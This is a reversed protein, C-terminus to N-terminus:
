VISSDIDVDPDADGDADSDVDGADTPLSRKERDRAPKNAILTQGHDVMARHQTASVKPSCTTTMPVVPAFSSSPTDIATPISARAKTTEGEKDSSGDDAQPIVMDRVCGSDPSVEGNEVPPSVVSTTVIPPVSAVSNSTTIVLPPLLSGCASQSTSEANRQGDTAVIMRPTSGRRSITGAPSIMRPAPTDVLAEKRKGKNSRFSRRTVTRAKDKSETEGTQQSRPQDDQSFAAAQDALVDLASRVKGLNRVNGASAHIPNTKRRKSTPSGFQTSNKRKGSKGGGRAGDEIMSQAASLLSALPTKPQPPTVSLSSSSPETSQNIADAISSASAHNRDVNKRSQSGQQGAQRSGQTASSPQAAPKASAVTSSSAAALPSTIMPVRVAGPPTQMHPHLHPYGILGPNPVFMYAAGNPSGPHQFLQVGPISGTTGRKPTRPSTTNNTVAASGPTTPTPYHPSVPLLHTTTATAPKSPFDSTAQAKGKGKKANKTTNSAGSVNRYYGTFGAAQREREMEEKTQKHREQDRESKANVLGTVIGAREHGIKRAALLYHESRADSAISSYRKPSKSRPKPKPTSAASNSSEAQNQSQPKRLLHQYISPASSRQTDQLLGSQPISLKSSGAAQQQNGPTDGTGSGGTFDNRSSHDTNLSVPPPVKLEKAEKERKKKKIMKDRNEKLAVAGTASPYPLTSMYASTATLTTYAVQPNMVLLPKLRYLEGELCSLRAHTEQERDRLERNDQQLAVCQRELEDQRSYYVNKGSRQHQFILAEVAREWGDRESEMRAREDAIRQTLFDQQAKLDAILTAQQVLQSSDPKPAEILRLLMASLEKERPTLMSNDGSTIGMEEIRARYRALEDVQLPEPSESRELSAFNLQTEFNHSDSPGPPTPSPSM